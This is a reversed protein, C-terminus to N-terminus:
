AGVRWDELVLSECHAFEGTNSTVLVLGRRLATAGILLDYAGIPRGKRKLEARLRAAEDADKREFPLVTVSDFLADVVKALKRGLSPRLLLGYQVEMVTVVSVAIASPSTARLRWLVPETGRVFDSVVSTDLLYNV